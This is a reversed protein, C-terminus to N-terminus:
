KSSRISVSSEYIKITEEAMKQWSFDKARRKGGFLFAKKRAQSLTQVASFIPKISESNKPDFYLADEGCIENFSPINSVAVLCNNEMAELAPLGFGEMYSASILAVAHNYLYGLESDSVTHLFTIYPLTAYKSEIREYFYDNKGVLVLIDKTNGSEEKYAQFATILNEVNKHPYANGVYLFYSQDAYTKIENSVISATISSDFGEKTVSIQQAPVGLITELDRKVSRLPVIIKKASRTAHAVVKKYAYRKLHYLPLPLTSARGTSFSHLILDHITVVFPRTYLYPLSFYPFHMLDVQEKYLQRLFVTQEKFSHWQTDTSVLKWTPPILSSIKQKTESKVFLVYTNSTDIASLQLVLNRIYRGVGTEDWLRADIGIKM